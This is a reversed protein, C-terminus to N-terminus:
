TENWKLLNTIIFREEEQKLSALNFHPTVILEMDDDEGIRHGSKRNLHSSGQLCLICINADTNNGDIERMQRTKDDVVHRLLNM